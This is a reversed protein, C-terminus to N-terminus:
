SLLRKGSLALMAVTIVAAGLILQFHLRTPPRAIVLSVGTVVISLNLALGIWASIPVAGQPAAVVVVSAVALVLYTALGSARYGLRQPLGRVGVHSDDELDPIANALHAAIGLSAGAVLTWPAAWLPPASSLTVYLPLVGFGVMYPVVSLLSGKLWLNYALGSLIFVAHAATALLGLPTTLALAVVISTWSFASVV